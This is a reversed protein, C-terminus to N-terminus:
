VTERGKVGANDLDGARELGCAAKGALHDIDVVAAAVCRERGRARKRGVIEVDLDDRQRAIEAFLGRQEGAEIMGAQSGHQEDVTVPLMWRCENFLEGRMPELAAIV